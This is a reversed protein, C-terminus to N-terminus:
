IEQREDTTELNIFHKYHTQFAEINKENVSLKYTCLHKRNFITENRKM